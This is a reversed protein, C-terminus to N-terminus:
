RLEEPIPINHKRFIEAPDKSNGFLSYIQNHILEILIPCEDSCPEGTDGSYCCKNSKRYPCYRKIYLYRNDAM